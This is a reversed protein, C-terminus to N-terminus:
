SNRVSVRSGRGIYRLYAAVLPDDLPAPRRKADDADCTMKGTWFTLADGFDMGPPRASGSLYAALADDCHQLGAAFYADRQAIWADPVPLPSAPTGLAGQGDPGEAVFALAAGRAGAGAARTLWALRSEIQDSRLDRCKETAHHRQTRFADTREKGIMPELASDEADLQEQPTRDEARARLCDAVARYARMADDAVGSRAWADVRSALGAAPVTAAPAASSRSAAVPAPRTIAPRPEVAAATAQPPPEAPSSPTPSAFWGALLAAAVLAAVVIWPTKLRFM